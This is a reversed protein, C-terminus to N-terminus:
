WKRLQAWLTKCIIALFAARTQQNETLLSCRGYQGTLLASPSAGGHEGNAQVLQQNPKLLSESTPEGARGGLLHWAQDGGGNDEKM